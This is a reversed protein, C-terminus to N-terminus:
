PIVRDIHSVRASGQGPLPQFVYVKAAGQTSPHDTGTTTCLFCYNTGAVVQTAFAVPTYTVGILTMATKFVQSAEPTVPNGFNSWGGTIVDSMLLEKSLDHCTVGGAVSVSTEPEKVM